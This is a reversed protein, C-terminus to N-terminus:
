YFVDKPFVKLEKNIKYAVELFRTAKTLPLANENNSYLGHLFLMQFPVKYGYM